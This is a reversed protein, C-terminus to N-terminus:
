DVRTREKHLTGRETGCVGSDQEWEVAVGM